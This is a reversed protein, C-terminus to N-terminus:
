TLGTRVLWTGGSSRFLRVISKLHTEMYRPLTLRSPDSIIVGNAAPKGNIRVCAWIVNFRIIFPM